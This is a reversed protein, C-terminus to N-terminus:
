KKKKNGWSEIVKKLEPNQEVMNECVKEGL